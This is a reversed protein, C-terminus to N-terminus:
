KTIKRSRKEELDVYIIQCTEDLYPKSHRDLLDTEKVFDLISTHM